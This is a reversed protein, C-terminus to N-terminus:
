FSLTGDSELHLNVPHTFIVMTVFGLYLTDERKGTVIKEIPAGNLVLRRAETAFSPNGKPYIYGITSMMSYQIAVKKVNQFQKIVPAM